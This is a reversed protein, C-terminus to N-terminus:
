AAAGGFRNLIDRAGGLHDVSLNIYRQSTVISEHGLWEKIHSASAGGAALRTACTHRLDHINVDHLFKLRTRLRSWYTQFGWYGVDAFVTSQSGEPRLRRQRLMERVRDTAWVSRTKGSKTTSAAFTIKGSDTDIYDWTLKLTEGFRAGVDVLFLVLDYEKQRGSQELFKLLAQEEKESIVRDRSQAKEMSAIHPMASIIGNYTAFKCVVKISAIHRNITDGSNHRVGKMHELYSQISQYTLAETVPTAPGIFEAFMEANRHLKHASKRGKFDWHSKRVHDVFPGIARPTPGSVKAIQASPREVEKGIALSHRSQAEWLDAESKTDFMRRYRTGQVMFDAIFKDGKERTAM